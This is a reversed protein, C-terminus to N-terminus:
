ENYAPLDETSVPISSVWRAPAPSPRPPDLRIEEVREPPLMLLPDMQNWWLIPQGQSSFSKSRTILFPAVATSVATSSDGSLSPRSSFSQRSAIPGGSIHFRDGTTYGSSIGSSSSSSSFSSKPIEAAAAAAVDAARDDLLLGWRMVEVAGQMCRVRNLILDERAAILDLRLQSIRPMLISVAEQAFLISARIRDLKAECRFIAALTRDEHPNHTPMPEHDPLMPDLAFANQINLDARITMQKADFILKSTFWDPIDGEKGSLFRLLSLASKVQAAAGKLEGEAAIHRDLEDVASEFNGKCSSIKLRLALDHKDEAFTEDLLLALEERWKSLNESKETMSTIESLAHELRKFTINVQSRVSAVSKKTKDLASQVNLIHGDLGGQRFTAAISSFSFTSRLSNLEHELARREKERRSLERKDLELRDRLSAILRDQAPIQEDLDRLSSISKSLEEFREVSLMLNMPLPHPDDPPGLEDEEAWLSRSVVSGDQEYGYKSSLVAAHAPSPPSPDSPLESSSSSEGGDEYM